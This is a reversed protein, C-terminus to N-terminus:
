IIQTITLSPLSTIRTFSELVAAWVSRLCVRQSTLPHCLTRTHAFSLYHVCLGGCSLARITYMLSYYILSSFFWGNRFLQHAARSITAGNRKKVPLAFYKSYFTNWDIIFYFYDLILLNCWEQIVLFAKDVPCSSKRALTATRWEWACELKKLSGEEGDVCIYKDNWELDSTGLIKTLKIRHM